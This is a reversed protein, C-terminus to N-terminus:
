GARAHEQLAPRADGLVKGATGRCHQRASGARREQPFQKYVFRVDDPYKALVQNVVDTARSCYPCQFDSFEVLTFKADKKGKSPAKSVDIATPPPAAPAGQAQVPAPVLTAALAVALTM